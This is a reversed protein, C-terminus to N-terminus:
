VVLIANEPTAVESTTSVPESKGIPPILTTVGGDERGKLMVM